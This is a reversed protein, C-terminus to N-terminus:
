GGRYINTNVESLVKLRSAHGSWIIEEERNGTFIIMNEFLNFASGEKGGAEWVEMHKWKFRETERDIGEEAPQRRVDKARDTPVVM